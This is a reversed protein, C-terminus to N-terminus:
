FKLSVGFGSPNADCSLMAVVEGSANKIKKMKSGGLWAIGGGALMVAFGAIEMVEGRKYAPQQKAEQNLDYIEQASGSSSHSNTYKNQEITCIVNGALWAAAGVGAAVIGSTMTAKAQKYTKSERENQPAYQAYAVMTFILGLVILILKKM